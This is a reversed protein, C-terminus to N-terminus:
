SCHTSSFWLTNQSLQIQPNRLEPYSAFVFAKLYGFFVLIAALRRAVVLHM